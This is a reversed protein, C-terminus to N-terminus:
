TLPVFTRDKLEISRPERFRQLTKTGARIYGIARVARGKPPENFIYVHNPQGPDPWVTTELYIHYKAM